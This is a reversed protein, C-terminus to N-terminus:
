LAFVLLSLALVGGFVAGYAVKAPARRWWGPILAWFSLGVFLPPALAPEILPWAFPPRPWRQSPRLPEPYLSPAILVLNQEPSPTVLAQAEVAALWSMALLLVSAILALRPLGDRVFALIQLALLLLWLVASAAVVAVTDVLAGLMGSDGGRGFGTNGIYFNALAALVILWL